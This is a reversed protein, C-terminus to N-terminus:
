LQDGCMLDKTVEKLNEGVLLIDDSFLIYWPVEGQIKQLKM